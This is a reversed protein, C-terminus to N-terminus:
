PMLSFLDARKLENLRTDFVLSAWPAALIGFNRLQQQQSQLLAAASEVYM